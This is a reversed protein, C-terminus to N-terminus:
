YLNGRPEKEVSIEALNKKRYYGPRLVVKSASTHQLLNDVGLTVRLYWPDIEVQVVEDIKQQFIEVPGWVHM